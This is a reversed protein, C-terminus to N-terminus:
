DTATSDPCRAITVKGRNIAAAIVQKLKSVDVPKALYGSAGMMLARKRLRPTASVSFIVVPVGSLVPDNKLEELLAWGDCDPLRLDLLVMSLGWTERALRLGEEGTIAQLVTYGEFDLVRCTFQQIDAEDEIVLVSKAQLDIM